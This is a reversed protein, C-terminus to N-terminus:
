RKELWDAVARLEAATANSKLRNARFSIIQVNGKVYGKHSDIRDLSPCWDPHGVRFKVGFIPCRLPVRVDEKTLNFCIGLQAARQKAAYMLYAGINKRYQHRQKKKLQAQNKKYYSRWYKALRKKNKKYYTKKYTPNYKGM